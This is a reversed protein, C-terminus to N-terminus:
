RYTGGMVPCCYASEAWKCSRSSITTCIRDRQLWWAPPALGAEGLEDESHAGGTPVTVTRAGAAGAPPM